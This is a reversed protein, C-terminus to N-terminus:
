FHDNFNLRCVLYPYEACNPAQLLDLLEQTNESVEQDLAELDQSLLGEGDEEFFLRGAEEQLEEFTAVLALFKNLCALIPAASPVLFTFEQLHQLYKAHEALLEDLNKAQHFGQELRAHATELVEYMVYSQINEVVHALLMRISDMQRSIYGEEGTANKHRLLIQSKWCEKLSFNARRLRWLFCSIKRLLPMTRDSTFVVHLPSTVAYDLSFIDWGIEGHSAYGLLVDLRDLYESEHFQANSRQIAQDVISRINHRFVEKRADKRLDRDALELFGEIFDGQALLLYRKIAVCHNLLHYKNLLLDVLRKNTHASQQRVFPQLEEWGKAHFVPLGVWDSEECCLHIFNVSKGTTLITQAMDLDLYCPVMDPNLSYMSDWLDEIRVDMDAVVFFEGQPDQLKGETMWAKIMEYMPRQTDQLLKEVIPRLAPDGTKSAMYLASLLPGGKQHAAAVGCLRCLMKIKNGPQRFWICLRRLTLDGSHVETEFIAIWKFYDLLLQRVCHRFAQFLLSENEMGLLVDLQRYATGIELLEAVLTQAGKAISVDPKLFFRVVSSDWEVADSEVGQLAFLCDKIIDHESHGCYVLDSYGGSADMGRTRHNAQAGGGANTPDEVNTGPRTSGLHSSSLGFMRAAASSSATASRSSPASRGGEYGQHNPPDGRLLHLLEMVPLHATRTGLGKRRLAQFRLSRSVIDSRDDTGGQGNRGGGGPDDYGLLTQSIADCIERESSLQTDFSRLSLLRYALRMNGPTNLGDGVKRCLRELLTRMMASHGPGSSSTARAYGRLEEGFAM